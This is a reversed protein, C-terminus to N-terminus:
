IRGRGGGKRGSVSGNDSPFPTPPSVSFVICPCTLCIFHHSFAQPYAQQTPPPLNNYLSCAFACTRPYHTVARPFQPLQPTTATDTRDQGTLVLPCVTCSCFPRWPTDPPRTTPHKREEGPGWGGMEVGSGWFGVWFGTQFSGSGVGVTKM